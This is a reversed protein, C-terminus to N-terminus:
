APNATRRTLAKAPALLGVPGRQIRRRTIASRASVNLLGRGQACREGRTILRRGVLRHRRCPAITKRQERSVQCPCNGLEQRMELGVSVLVGEISSKLAQRRLDRVSRTVEERM